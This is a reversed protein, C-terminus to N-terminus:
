CQKSNRFSVDKILATQLVLKVQIIKCNTNYVLWFTYVRIFISITYIKERWFTINCIKTSFLFKFMMWLHYL